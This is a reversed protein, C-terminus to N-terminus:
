IPSKNRDLRITRRNPASFSAPETNRLSGRFYDFEQEPADMAKTKTRDVTEENMFELFVM